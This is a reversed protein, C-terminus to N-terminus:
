LNIFDKMFIIKINKINNNVPFLKVYNSNTNLLEIEYLFMLDRRWNFITNKIENDIADSMNIMRYILDLAASVYRLFVTFKSFLVAQGGVSAYKREYVFYKYMREFQDIEELTYSTSTRTNLADLILDIINQNNEIETSKFTIGLVQSLTKKLNPAQGRYFYKRSKQEFLFATEEPAITLLDNFSFAREGHFIERLFFKMQDTLILSTDGEEGSLMIKVVLYEMISRHAFKYYNNADRNLLSRGGLQWNDLNIGWNDALKKLEEYLVGESGRKERNLYIDLALKESFRRLLEKDVWYAERELWADIMIEYLQYTYKIQTSSAAIDPIHALLMPRVSLLPIKIAIDLAKKRKTRNWFPYRKYLYKKVDSNEFPSIYLKWFEYLGKDGAQRPGLRLVGTEVPVEEARPFFQTRCTIIVKKFKRCKQMLLTIRDKHNALAKVDEDLADLFIVIKEKNPIKEILEEADKIGLPVLALNQKKRRHTNQAYYNLVLSTKGMGSDALILLHRKSDDSSIFDDIREFLDEKVAVLAHRPEQEQAPDINTCKPRIYYKTSREITDKDYPGRGFKENLIQRNIRELFFPYVSFFTQTLTFGLGIVALLVGIIDIITNLIQM